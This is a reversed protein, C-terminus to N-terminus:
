ASRRGVLDRAKDAGGQRELMVGVKCACSNVNLDRAEGAKAGVLQDEFGPILQGSGLVLTFDEAKGGPFEEGDVKGTFDIVVADNKEAAEGESRASYTRAQEALKEVAEDVEKDTVEGVIHEVAHRVSDDKFGFLLKNHFKNYSCEIGLACIALSYPKTAASASAAFVPSQDM